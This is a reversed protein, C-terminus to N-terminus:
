SLRAERYPALSILEMPTLFDEAKAYTTARQGNRESTIGVPTTYLRAALSAVVGSVAAPVPDTGHDYTVRLSDELTGWGAPWYGSPRITGRRLNVRYATPDVVEWTGDSLERELQSVATVPLNPLQLEGGAPTLYAVDGSVATITNDVYERIMNSAWGIFFLATADDAPLDTQM